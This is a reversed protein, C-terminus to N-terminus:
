HEPPVVQDHADHTQAAFRASKAAGSTSLFGGMALFVWLMFLGYAAAAGEAVQVIGIRRM